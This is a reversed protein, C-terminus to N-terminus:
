VVAVAAVLCDVASGHTATNPGGNASVPGSWVLGLENTTTDRDNLWISDANQLIYARFYDRDRSSLGAQSLYHLNRLFVGKFTPGDSGCDGGGSECSEHLIGNASLADIGARAIAVAAPLLSLDAGGLARHLEVLGGLVVGQNYSWVTAGNNSCSGNEHIVLGDNVTGQANIMGSHRFWAWQGVAIDRYKVRAAAGAVRNALSAAAALYLENAIANKYTHDKSWWIGGGCVDTSVGRHLDAFISEASVLYDTRNTADFAHILALTWWGEDDYFNNIFGSFTDHVAVLSSSSGPMAEVEVATRVYSSRVLGTSDVVKVATQQSGSGQAAAYTNAMIATLGLRTADDGDLLAFDALTTLLNASNWWGTGNWLGDAEDYWGQLTSIASVTQATYARSDARPGLLALAQAVLSSGHLLVM